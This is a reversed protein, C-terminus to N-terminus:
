KESLGDAYAEVLAECIAQELRDGRKTTLLVEGARAAFGDGNDRFPDLVQKAKVAWRKEVQSLPTSM